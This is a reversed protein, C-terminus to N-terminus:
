RMRQSDIYEQGSLDFCDTNGDQDALAYQLAVYQSIILVPLTFCLEIMWNVAFLIVSPIVAFIISDSLLKRDFQFSEYGDSRLKFLLVAIAVRTLLVVVCTYDCVSLKFCALVAIM